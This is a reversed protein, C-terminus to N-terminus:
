KVNVIHKALDKFCIVNDRGGVEAFFISDGYHEQLKQKFRKISYIESGDSFEAMKAHLESLTYMEAGAELELWHYLRQFWEMKEEDCHKGSIKPTNTTLEKNLLFRTPCNDHYVAEAAVLDICGQLRNMVESGLPDDRKECGEMLKAHMPLTTVSRVITEPYRSDIIASHGCLM